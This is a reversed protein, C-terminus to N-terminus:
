NLKTVIVHYGFPGKLSEIAIVEYRFPDKSGFDTVTDWYGFPGKASLKRVIVQYRIPGKASSKTPTAWHGFVEKEVQLM